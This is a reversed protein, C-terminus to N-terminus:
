NRVSAIARATNRFHLKAVKGLLQIGGIRLVRKAALDVSAGAGKHLDTGCDDGCRALGNLFASRALMSAAAVVPHSEARPSQLIRPGTVSSSVLADHILSQASFQDVLIASVERQRGALPAIARAHLDALVLNLNGVKSYTRNYDEPDLVVVNHDLRSEILGSVRLVRDDPLSKSDAVGIRALLDQADPTAFVAAAVLPGFYDGKGAEDSGITPDVFPRDSDHTSRPGLEEALYMACFMDVGHGQLVLKGSRYCTAVVDLSRVSFRAKKVSRWEADLALRARLAKELSDAEDASLKM